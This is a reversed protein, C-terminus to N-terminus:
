PAAACCIVQRRFALTLASAMAWSAPDEAAKHTIIYLKSGSHVLRSRILLVVEPYLTKWGTISSLRKESDGVFDIRAPLNELTGKITPYTIIRM